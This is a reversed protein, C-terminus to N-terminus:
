DFEWIFDLGGNSIVNQLGRALAYADGNPVRAAIKTWSEIKGAHVWQQAPNSACCLIQQFSVPCGCGGVRLSPTLKVMVVVSVLVVQLCSRQCQPCGM